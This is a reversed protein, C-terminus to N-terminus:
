CYSVSNQIKVISVSDAAYTNKWSNELINPINDRQAYAAAGVAIELIIVVCLVIFYTKLLIGKENAAGFCGLFSIITVLIGIIISAAAIGGSLGVIDSVKNSVIYAGGAMLIIGAMMSLFNIALLLNKIFTFSVTNLNATM